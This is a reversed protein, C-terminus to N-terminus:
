DEDSYEYAEAMLESGSDDDDEDDDEDEDENNDDDLSLEINYIEQEMEDDEDEDEDEDEEIDDDNDNDECIINDEVVFGDKLYGNKTKLNAPINDLEDESMEEESDLNEFGGFLKEYIKLWLEQTLDIINSTKPEVSLLCCTGFYLDNDVPPPFDYKNETNAKGNIKGWLEIQYKTENINVDWVTRKEFDTDKRFGCKKYLVDRSIDKIKTQKIEGGKQVLLISTM